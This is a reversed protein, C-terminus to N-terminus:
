LCCIAGGVKEWLEVERSQVDTAEAAAVSGADATASDGGGGGSSGTGGGGAVAAAAAVAASGGGGTRLAKLERVQGFFLVRRRVLCSLPSTPSFNGPIEGEDGRPKRGTRDHM